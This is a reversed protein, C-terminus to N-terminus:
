IPKLHRRMRKMCAISFAILLLGSVKPEPVSQTGSISFSPAFPTRSGSAWTAGVFTAVGSPATGNGSDGEWIVSNNNVTDAVLWYTSNSQLVLSSPATFTYELARTDNQNYSPNLLTLLLSGPYNSANNSWVQIRPATNGNLNMFLTASDFTYSNNPMTFGVAYWRGNGVSVWNYALSTEPLNSLLTTQAHTSITLLMAIVLGIFSSYQSPSHKRLLPTM